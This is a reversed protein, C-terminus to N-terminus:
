QCASWTAQQTSRASNRWGHSGGYGPCHIVNDNSLVWPNRRKLASRGFCVGVTANRWYELDAWNGSPHVREKRKAQGCILNLLMCSSSVLFGCVNFRESVFSLWSFPNMRETNAYRIRTKMMATGPCTPNNLCCYRLKPIRYSGIKWNPMREM